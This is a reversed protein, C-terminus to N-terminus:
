DVSCEESMLRSEESDTSGQLVGKRADEYKEESTLLSIMAESYNCTMRIRPHEIHIQCGDGSRGVITNHYTGFGPYSFEFEGPECTKLSDLYGILNGPEQNASDNGSVEGRKWIVLDFDNDPRIKLNLDGDAGLHMAISFEMETKRYPDTMVASLLTRDRSDEELVVSATMPRDDFGHFSIASETIRAEAEVELWRRTWGPKNETSMNPDDAITRATAEKDVVWTGLFREPVEAFAPICLGAVVLLVPLRCM